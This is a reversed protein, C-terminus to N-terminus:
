PGIVAFTHNLQQYTPSERGKGLSLFLVSAHNDRDFCKLPSRAAPFVLRVTELSPSAENNTLTTPTATNGDVVITPEELKDDVTEVTSDKMM